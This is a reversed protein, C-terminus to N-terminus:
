GGTVSCRGTDGHRVGNCFGELSLLDLAFRLHEVRMEQSLLDFAFLLLHEVRMEQSRGTVLSRVRIASPTRCEEFVPRRKDHELKTIADPVPAHPPTRDDELSTRLSRFHVQCMFCRARNMADALMHCEHGYVQQMM